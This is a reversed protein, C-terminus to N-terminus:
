PARTRAFLSLNQGSFSQMAKPPEQILRDASSQGIRAGAIFRGPLYKGQM